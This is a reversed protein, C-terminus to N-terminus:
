RNENQQNEQMKKWDHAQVARAALGLCRALGDSRRHRFTCIPERNIYVQYECVGYPDGDLSRVNHIIISM